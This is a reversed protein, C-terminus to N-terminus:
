TYLEYKSLEKFTNQIDQQVKDEELQRRQLFASMEALQLAVAKVQVHWICVFSISVISTYVHENM